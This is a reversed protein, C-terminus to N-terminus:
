PSGGPSSSLAAGLIQLLTIDNEAYGAGRAYEIAQGVTVSPTQTSLLKLTHLPINLDGSNSFIEATMLVMDTRYDESMMEPTTDVIVVPSILWGYLLGVILGVTLAILFRKLRHM